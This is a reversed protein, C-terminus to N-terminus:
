TTKNEVYFSGITTVLAVIDNDVFPDIVGFLRDKVIKQVDRSGRIKDILSGKQTKDGEFFSLLNDITNSLSERYESYRPTTMMQKAILREIQSVEPNSPPPPPPRSRPMRVGRPASILPRKKEPRAQQALTLSERKEEVFQENDLTEIEKKSVIKVM